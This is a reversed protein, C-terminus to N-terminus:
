PAPPPKIRGTAPKSTTIRPAFGMLPRGDPGRTEQLDFSIGIIEGSSQPQALFPRALALSLAAVVVLVMLSGLTWKLRRRPTDKM